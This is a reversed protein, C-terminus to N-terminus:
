LLSHDKADRCNSKSKDLYFVIRCIQELLRHNTAHDPSKCVKGSYVLEMEGTRMRDIITSNLMNSIVRQFRDYIAMM